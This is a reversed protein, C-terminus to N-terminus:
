QVQRAFSRWQHGAAQVPCPEALWALIDIYCWHILLLASNPLAFAHKIDATVTPGIPRSRRMGNQGAQAAQRFKGTCRAACRLLLSLFIIVTGPAQAHPVLVLVLHM